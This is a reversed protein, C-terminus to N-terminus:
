KKLSKIFNRGQGSKLFKERKLADKKTKFFAVHIVRWPRYKITFGKTALQNHSRFRSILDCTYGTYHIDHKDSYLIYVVYEM